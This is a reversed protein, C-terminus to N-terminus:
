RRIALHPPPPPFGPLMVLMLPLLTMQAGAQIGSYVFNLCVTDLIEPNRNEVVSFSADADRIMM